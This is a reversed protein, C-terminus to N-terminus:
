GDNALNLSYDVCSANIEVSSVHPLRDGGRMHLPVRGHDMTHELVHLSDEIIKVTGSRYDEYQKNIKGLYACDQWSVGYLKRKISLDVLPM